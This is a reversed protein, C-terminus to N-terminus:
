YLFILACTRYAIYILLIPRKDSKDSLGTKKFIFTESLDRNISQELAINKSSTFCIIQNKKINKLMKELNQLLSYM